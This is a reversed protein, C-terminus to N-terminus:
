NNISYRKVIRLKHTREGTETNIIGGMDIKDLRVTGSAHIVNSNNILIGVHTIRGEENDFFALDGCIAESLFAVEEGFTLQQYADRPLYIGMVKFLQQTLGSCDIGFTSKGGWLYPTYMYEELLALINKENFSLYREQLFPYSILCNELVVKDKYYPTGLSVRCVIHSFFIDQVAKTFYGDSKPLHKNFVIQKKQIWGQYGDYTCEILVFDKEINLVKGTEGLLLQSVMESKHSPEKRLPAVAAICFAFDM